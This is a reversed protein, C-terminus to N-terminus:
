TSPQSADGTAPWVALEITYAIEPKLVNSVFCGKEAKEMLARVDAEPASSWVQLEVSINEIYRNENAAIWGEIREIPVKARRATFQFSITLCSLLGGLFAEVPTPGADTGGDAAPEDLTWNRTASEVEVRYANGLAVSKLERKQLM